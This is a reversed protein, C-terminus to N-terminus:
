KGELAMEAIIRPCSDVWQQFAARAAALSHHRERFSDSPSMVRNFVRVVYHEGDAPVREMRISLIDGVEHKEIYGNGLAYATLWGQEDYYRAHNDMTGDVAMQRRRAREETHDVVRHRWLHEFGDRHEKAEKLSRCNFSRIDGGAWLKVEWAHPLAKGIRIARCELVGDRHRREWVRASRVNPV